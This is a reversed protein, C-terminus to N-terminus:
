IVNEEFKTSLKPLSVIAKVLETAVTFDVADVEDDLIFVTSPLEETVRNSQCNLMM